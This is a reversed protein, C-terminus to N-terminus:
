QAYELWAIMASVAIMAAPVAVALASGMFRLAGSVREFHRASGETMSLRAQLDPNADGRAELLQDIKGELRALGKNMRGIERWQQRTDGDVRSLWRRLEGPTPDSDGDERGNAM